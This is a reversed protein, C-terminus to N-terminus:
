QGFLALIEQLWGKVKEFLGKHDIEIRSIKEYIDRAQQKLQDVDLDLRSIKKMLDMIEGKQEETLSFGLKKEGEEVAKEMEEESPNEHDAIFEKLMAIFQEAKESDGIEEALQGTLVLENTATDKETEGIEEGTMEEYAIMAGVLAATGTIRSPGAVIVEADTIGATTLANEYMGETCFSINKTTVHIGEGEERKEILVSSLARSGILSSNLYNDLYRHEDKNTVTVMRYDDLEDPSVGLLDLVRAKEESKLDAGLSLYPKEESDAKVKVPAAGTVATLTLITGMVAAAIRKAKM